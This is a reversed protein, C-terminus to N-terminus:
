LLSPNLRSPQRKADDSSSLPEAEEDDFEAERRTLLRCPGCACLRLLAIALLSLGIMVSARVTHARAINRTREACSPDVPMGELDREAILALALLM